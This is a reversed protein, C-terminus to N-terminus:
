TIEAGNLINLLVNRTFEHMPAFLEVQRHLGKTMINGPPLCWEITRDFSSRSVGLEINRRDRWMIRLRLRPNHQRAANTTRVSIALAVPNFSVDNHRRRQHTAISTLSDM